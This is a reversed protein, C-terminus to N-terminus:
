VSIQTSIQTEPVVTVTVSSCPPNMLSMQQSFAASQAAHAAAEQAEKILELTGANCEIVFNADNKLQTFVEKLTILYINALLQLQEAEPVLDTRESALVVELSEQSSDVIEYIKDLRKYAVYLPLKERFLHDKVVEVLKQTEATLIAIFLEDEALGLLEQKAYSFHREPTNNYSSYAGYLAGALTCFGTWYPVEKPHKFKLSNVLLTGVVSSGFGALAGGMTSCFVKQVSKSSLRPTAMSETIESSQASIQSAVLFTCLLAYNFNKM